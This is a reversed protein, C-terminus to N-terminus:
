QQSLLDGAAVIWEVQFDFLFITVVVVVVYGDGIVIM